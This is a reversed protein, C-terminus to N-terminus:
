KNPYKKILQSAAEEQSSYFAEKIFEKKIEEINQINRDYNWGANMNPNKTTVIVNHTREFEEQKEEEVFYRTNDEIDMYLVYVKEPNKDDVNVEDKFLVSYTEYQLKSIYMLIKNTEEIEKNKLALNIAEDLVYDNIDVDESTLWHIHKEKIRNIKEKRGPTTFEQEEEIFDTEVMKTIDEYERKISNFLEKNM